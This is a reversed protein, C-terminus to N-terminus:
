LILLLIRLLIKYFYNGHTGTNRRRGDVVRDAPGEVVLPALDHLVEDVDGGVHGDVGEDEEGEVSVQYCSRATL